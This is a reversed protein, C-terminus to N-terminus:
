DEEMYESLRRKQRDSMRRLTGVALKYSDYDNPDKSIKWLSVLKEVTEDLDIIQTLCEKM